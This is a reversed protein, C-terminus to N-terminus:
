PILIEEIADAVEDLAVATADHTLFDRRYDAKRRLVKILKYFLENASMVICEKNLAKEYAEMFEPSLKWTKCSEISAIM